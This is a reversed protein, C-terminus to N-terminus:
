GALCKCYHRSICLDSFGHDVRTVGSLLELVCVAFAANLCIWHVQNELAIRDCLGRCCGTQGALTKMSHSATLAAPKVCTSKARNGSSAGCRASLATTQAGGNREWPEGYRIHTVYPHWPPACLGCGKYFFETFAVLPEPIGLSQTRVSGFVSADLTSCTLLM